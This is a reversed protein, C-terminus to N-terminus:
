LPQKVEGGTNEYYVYRGHNPPLEIPHSSEINPPPLLLLEESSLALTLLDPV